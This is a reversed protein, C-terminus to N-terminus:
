SGSRRAAREDLGVLAQALLADAQLEVRERLHGALADDEDVVRDDAAVRRPLDDREEEVRAGLLHVDPDRRRRDDRGAEVPDVERVLLLEDGDDRVTSSTCSCIPAVDSAYMESSPTWAAVVRGSFSNQRAHKVRVYGVRTGAPLVSAFNRKSGLVAYGFRDLM